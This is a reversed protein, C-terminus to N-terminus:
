GVIVNLDTDILLQATNFTYPTCEIGNVMLDTGETWGPDLLNVSDGANGMILLQTTGDTFFADLGDPLALVDDIDLRLQNNGTGTIDFIEFGTFQTDLIMSLNLVQGGGGLKLTDRGSEGHAGRADGADFHVVDNGPGGQILDNGSSGQLNDNGAGGSVLDNGPGGNIWDHGAYGFLSDNGNKGAMVDNQVSGVIRDALDTGGLQRIGRLTITRFDWNVRAEGTGSLITTGTSNTIADIGSSTESFTAPLFVTPVGATLITDVDAAGSGTDKYTDPKAETTARYRDSGPGGDLYDQGAGGTMLDNGTGGLLRDNGNMGSLSDDGLNGM